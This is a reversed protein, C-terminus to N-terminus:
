ASSRWSGTRAATENLGFATAYILMGNLFALLWDQFGPSPTGVSLLTFSIALAALLAVWKRAVNGLLYGAVNGVLLTASSAGTLSALAGITYFDNIQQTATEM